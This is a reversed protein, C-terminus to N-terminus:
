NLCSFADFNFSFYHIMKWIHASEQNQTGTLERLKGNFFFLENEKSVAFFTNVNSSIYTLKPIECKIVVKLLNSRKDM